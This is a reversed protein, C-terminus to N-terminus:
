LFGEVIAAVFLAWSAVALAYLALNRRTM